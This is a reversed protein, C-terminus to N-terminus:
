STVVKIADEVAMCRYNATICDPENSTQGGGKPFYAIALGWGSEWVAHKACECRACRSWRNGFKPHKAWEHGEPTVIRHVILNPEQPICGIVHQCPNM